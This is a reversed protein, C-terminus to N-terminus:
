ESQPLHKPCPFSQTLIPHTTSPYVCVTAPQCAGEAKRGGVTSRVLLGASRAARRQGHCGGQILAGQLYVEQSRVGAAGDATGAREAYNPKEMVVGAM